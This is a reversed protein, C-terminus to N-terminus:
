QFSFDLLRGEDGLNMKNKENKKRKWKYEDKTDRLLWSLRDALACLSAAARPLERHAERQPTFGQERDRSTVWAKSEEAHQAGDHHRRVEATIDKILRCHMGGWCLRRSTFKPLRGDKSWHSHCLPLTVQHTM